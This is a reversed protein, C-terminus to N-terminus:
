GDQLKALCGMLKALIKEICVSYIKVICARLPMYAAEAALFSQGRSRPGGTRKGPASGGGGDEMISIRENLIGQTVPVWLEIDMRSPYASKKGGAKRQNAEMIWVHYLSPLLCVKWSLLASSHIWFGVQGDVQFREVSRHLAHLPAQVGHGGVQHHRVLGARFLGDAQRHGGGQLGVANGAAGPQELHHLPHLLDVPLALPFGRAPLEGGGGPVVGLHLGMGIHGQVVQHGRGPHGQVHLVAGADVLHVQLIHRRLVNVDVGDILHEDVGGGVQFGIVEGGLLQRYLHNQVHLAGHADSSGCADAGVQVQGLHGHVDGGLVDRRVFVAHADRLQVLHAVAASQPAM